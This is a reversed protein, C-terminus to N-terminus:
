EIMEKLVKKRIIITQERNLIRCMEQPSLSMIYKWEYDQTDYVKTMGKIHKIPFFHKDCTHGDSQYRCGNTFVCAYIPLGEWDKDVEKEFCCNNVQDFENLEKPEDFIHLNKIHIAYGDQSYGEKNRLYEFLYDFLSDDDKFGSRSTLDCKYNCVNLGKYEYWVESHLIGFQDREKIHKYKIEEVDYDCEAVIKGNFNFPTTQGKSWYYNDKHNDLFYNDLKRLYPKAKTCYLLLKM